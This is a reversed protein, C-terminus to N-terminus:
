SKVSNNQLGDATEQKFEIAIKGAKIVKNCEALAKLSPKYYPMTTLSEKFCGRAEIISGVSMRAKGLAEWMAWPVSDGDYHEMIRHIYFSAQVPDKGILASVLPFIFTSCYPDYRLAKEMYEAQGTKFAVNAIVHAMMYRYTIIGVPIIFAITALLTVPVTAVYTTPVSSVGLGLLIWFILGSAPCRLNYFVLANILCYIVALSFASGLSDALAFGVAGLFLALGILGGEVAYGIYDNHAERPKPNPYNKPDLFKGKSAKNLEQHARYVERRYMRMGHGIWPREKILWLGATWYSFRYTLTNLKKRFKKSFLMVGGLGLTMAMLAAKSRALFLTVITFLVVITWWYSHNVMLWFPFGIAGLAYAAYWNRNGFTAFGCKCKKEAIWPDGKFHQYFSFCANLVLGLTGSLCILMLDVDYSSLAVFTIVFCIQTIAPRISYCAVPSWATTALCWAGWSLALIQAWGLAIQHQGPLTALVVVVMGMILVLIHKPTVHWNVIRTPVEVVSVLFLFIAITWDM